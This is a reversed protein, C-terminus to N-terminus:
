RIFEMEHTNWVDTKIKRYYYTVVFKNESIELTLCESLDKNRACAEGPNLFLTKGTFNIYKKHTHGFIVVDADPNLYIPIHMLKFRLGGLKFYYPEYVLSYEDRVGRLHKDNNGFVATFPVSSKKLEKLVGEEVIDGAHIIHECGVSILLDIVKKARKVKRHTDSLIGIKISYGEGRNQAQM